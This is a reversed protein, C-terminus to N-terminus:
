LEDTKRKKEARLVAKHTKIHYKVDDPYLPNWVTNCIKCESFAAQASINLTTQIAPSSPKNKKPKIASQKTPSPSSSPSATTDKNSSTAKHTNSIHSKLPPRGRRKQPAPNDDTEQSSSQDSSKHTTAKIRLLRPKRKTPPPPSSSKEPSDQLQQSPADAHPVQQLTPKFYSLISGRKLSEGPKEAKNQASADQQHAAVASAGAVAADDDSKTGGNASTLTSASKEQQQREREVSIRAKKSPPESQEPTSTQRGYTRLPKDRKRHHLGPKTISFEPSSSVM